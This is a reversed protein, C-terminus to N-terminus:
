LTTHYSNEKSAGKLQGNTQAGFMTTGTLQRLMAMDSM